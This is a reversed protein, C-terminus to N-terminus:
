IGSKRELEGNMNPKSSCIYVEDTVFSGRQLKFTLNRYWYERCPENSSGGISCGNRCNFSLVIFIFIFYKFPKSPFVKNKTIIFLINQETFKLNKIEKKM